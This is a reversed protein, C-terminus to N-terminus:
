LISTAWRLFLLIRLKHSNLSGFSTGIPIKFWYMTWQPLSKQPTNPFYSNPDYAGGADINLIAKKEEHVNLANKRGSFQRYAVRVIRQIPSPGCLLQSYKLNTVHVNQHHLIKKVPGECFFRYWTKTSYPSVKWDAVCSEAHLYGERSRLHFVISEGDSM